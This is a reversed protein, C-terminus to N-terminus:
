NGGSFYVQNEERTGGPFWASVDMHAFEQTFDVKLPQESIKAARGALDLVRSARMHALLYHTSIVIRNKNKTVAVRISGGTGQSSFIQGGFVEMPPEEFLNNEEVYKQISPEELPAAFDITINM